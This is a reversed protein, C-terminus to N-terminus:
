FYSIPSRLPHNVSSPPATITSHHGQHVTTKSEAGAKEAAERPLNATLDYCNRRGRSLHSLVFDVEAPIACDKVSSGSSATLIHISSYCLHFLHSTADGRAPMNSRNSIGVGGDTSSSGGM